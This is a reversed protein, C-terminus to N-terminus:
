EQVSELTKSATAYINWSEVRYIERKMDHLTKSYFAVVM